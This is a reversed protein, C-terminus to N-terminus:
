LGPNANCSTTMLNALTLAFLTEATLSRCGPLGDAVKRAANPITCRDDWPLGRFRCSPGSRTQACAPRTWAAQQPDSCLQASGFNFRPSWIIGFGAAIFGDADLFTLQCAPDTGARCAAALCMETTPTSPNSPLSGEASTNGSQM